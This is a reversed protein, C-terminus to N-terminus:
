KQLLSYKQGIVKFRSSDVESLSKIAFQIDM